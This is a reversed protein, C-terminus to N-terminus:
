KFMNRTFREKKGEYVFEIVQLKKHDIFRGKAVRKLYDIPLSESTVIVVHDAQKSGAGISHKLNNINKSKYSHEVEIFTKNSKLDPFKGPKSDKFLFNYLPDNVSDLRPLIDVKNGDAATLKAVSLVDEYDDAKVDVARHVRVVGGNDYEHLTLFGKGEPLMKLADALVSAPIDNWYPHKPPFILGKQALNVKFMEPLKEPYVIASSDTVTGGSRQRVTSRCGFHNPPYYQKWFPDNIPLLVGNFSRCLDTTRRDMVADFELYPLTDKNAEINVWKGAMQGGAIATDYETKLWRLHEGTIENAAKRFESFTKLGKGDDSILAQTVSKMQQWNKAASFAYVNNQLNALMHYDPSDYAISGFDKNYGKTVGGWLKKAFAATVPKNIGKPMGKRKWIDQYM